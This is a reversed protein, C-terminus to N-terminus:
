AMWTIELTDLALLELSRPHGFGTGFYSDTIFYVVNKNLYCGARQSANSVWVEVISWCNDFYLNAIPVYRGSAFIIKGTDNYILYTNGPILIPVYPRQKRRTRPHTYLYMMMCDMSNQYYNVRSRALIVIEHVIWVVGVSGKSSPERSHPSPSFPFNVIVWDLLRERMRWM